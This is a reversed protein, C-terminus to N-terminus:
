DYNDAELHYNNGAKEMVEPNITRTISQISGTITLVSKEKGFASAEAFFFKSSNVEVAFNINQM